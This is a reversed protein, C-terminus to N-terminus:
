GPSGASRATEFIWADVCLQVLNDADVVDLEGHVHRVRKITKELM